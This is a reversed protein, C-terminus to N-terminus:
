ISIPVTHMRSRYYELSESCRACTFGVGHCKAIQQQVHAEDVLGDAWAELVAISIHREPIPPTSLKSRLADRRKMFRQYIQRNTENHKARMHTTRTAVPPRAPKEGLLAIASKAM